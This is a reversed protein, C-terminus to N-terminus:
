VLMTLENFIEIRQAKKDELPKLHLYTILITMTSLMLLTLQAWVTKDFLFLAIVFAIRRLFFSMIYFLVAGNSVLKSQLKVGEFLAGHKTQFNDTPWESHNKFYTFTLLLPLAIAAITFFISM